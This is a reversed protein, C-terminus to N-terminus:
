TGEKVTLKTKESWFRIPNLVTLRLKDRLGSTSIYIANEFFVQILMDNASFSKVSWTYKLM